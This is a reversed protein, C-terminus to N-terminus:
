RGLQSYNEVAFTYKTKHSILKNQFYNNKFYMKSVGDM